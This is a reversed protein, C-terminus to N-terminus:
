EYRFTDLNPVISNKGVSIERNHDLMLPLPPQQEQQLKFTDINQFVNLLHCYPNQVVPYNPAEFFLQRIQDEQKKMILNEQGLQMDRVVSGPM